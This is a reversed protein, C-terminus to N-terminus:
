RGRSLRSLRAAREVTAGSGAHVIDTAVLSDAALQGTKLEKRWDKILASLGGRSEAGVMVNKGDIAGVTVGGAQLREGHLSGATAAVREGGTPGRGLELTADELVLLKAFFARGDTLQKRAKNLKDRETRGILSSPKELITWYRKAASFLVLARDRKAILSADNPTKDLLKQAKKLAQNAEAVTPVTTELALEEFTLKNIELFFQPEGEEDIGQVTGRYNRGRLMRNLTTSSFLFGLTAGAGQGYGHVGGAEVTKASLRGKLGTAKASAIDLAVGGRALGDLYKSVKWLKHEDAPSILGKDQLATLRARESKAEDIYSLERDISELQLVLSPETDVDLYYRPSPGTRAAAKRTADLREKLRTREEKLGRIYFELSRAYRTRFNLPGLAIDEVFQGSSTTLGKLVLNRSTMTVDQISEPKLLGSVLEDISGSLKILNVVPSVLPGIIPVALAIGGEPSGFAERLNEPRLELTLGEVLVSELGVMSDTFILMVDNLFLSDVRLQLTTSRHESEETPYQLHLHLGTVSGSGSQFKLNPLLYHINAIEFRKARLQLVGQDLDWRVSNDSLEQTAQEAVQEERKFEAGWSPDM